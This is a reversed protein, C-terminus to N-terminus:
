NESNNAQEESQQLQIPQEISDRMLSIAEQIGNKRIIAEFETQKSSLLSIGEAIMDYAEWENTKRNKRVKFAVKIDPRDDDKIVARVTVDSRDSFDRGPEFEVTQDDYYGMAVAYSTILYQRFVSIFELLDKREVTNVYKGLVKYASFRYDIFPLLEEEMIVRLREPDNKIDQKENKIREFTVSAVDQVMKYPDTKDVEAANALGSVGVSLLLVVVLSALQKHVKIM